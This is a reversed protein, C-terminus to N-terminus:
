FGMAGGGLLFLGSMSGVLGGAVATTVWRKRVDMRQSRGELARDLSPSMAEFLGYGADIARTAATFYEEPRITPAPKRILERELLALFELTDHTCTEFPRRLGGTDGEAILPEVTARVVELAERAQEMLFRLRMGTVTSVRGRAAATAGLARAQGLQEALQPLRNVLVDAIRRNGASEDLTLASEDGVERLLQLVGDILRTHEVFSRPVDSGKISNALKRWQERLATWQGRYGGEETRLEEDCRTLIAEIRGQAADIRQAFATDGALYANCMGRHQQIEQILDKLRRNLALGRRQRLLTGRRGSVCGLFLLLYVAGAVAAASLLLTTEM